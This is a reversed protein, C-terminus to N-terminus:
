ELLHKQMIITRENEHLSERVPVYGFKRYFGEATLSSQVSLTEISRERAFREVVDMLKAGIRKGQHDPDVFVTRVVSGQLSATGVIRGGAVAVYVQRNAILSTVKESTFNSVLADIIEPPYDQANTQLLARTITHSIGESDANTAPRIEIADPNTM